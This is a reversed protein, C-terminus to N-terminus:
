KLYLCKRIATQKETRIQYYYVGSSFGDPNWVVSHSGANQYDDELTEILQGASNYVALNLPNAPNIAITVEQPDISGPYNVQINSYQSFLISWCLLNFSFVLRTTLHITLRKM